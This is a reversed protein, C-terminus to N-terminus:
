LLKGKLQAPDISTAISVKQTRSDYHYISSGLVDAPSVLTNNIDSAMDLLHHADLVDSVAIFEHVSSPILYYDGGMRKALADLTEEDLVSSAGFRPPYTSNAIVLANIGLDAREVFAEAADRGFDEAILEMLLETLPTVKAEMSVNEKAAALLDEPPIDKQKLDNYDIVYGGLMPVAVLDQWEIHPYQSLPVNTKEQMCLTVHSLIEETTLLHLKNPM